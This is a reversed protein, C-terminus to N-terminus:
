NVEYPNPISFHALIETEIREMQVAEDETEHDYGLLHLLGHVFLHSLHQDFSKNQAIAEKQITEFAFVIDGLPVDESSPLVRLLEDDYAPFSLVNTPEDKQRYSVNLEQIHRDNTLLISILCPKNWGVHSFTKMAFSDFDISHVSPWDDCDSTCEINVLYPISDSDMKTQTEIM